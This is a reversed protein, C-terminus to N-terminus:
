NITELIEECQRFGQLNECLGVIHGLIRDGVNILAQIEELKGFGPFQTELSSKADYPLDDYRKRFETFKKAFTRPEPTHVSALLERMFEKADNNLLSARKGVEQKIREEADPDMRFEEEDDLKDGKERYELFAKKIFAEDDEIFIGPFFSQGKAWLLDFLEEHSNSEVKETLKGFFRKASAEYDIPASLSFAVISL